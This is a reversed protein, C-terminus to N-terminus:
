EDWDEDNRHNHANKQLSIAYDVQALMDTRDFNYAGNSYYQGKFWTYEQQGNDDVCVPLLVGRYQIACEYEAKVDEPLESFEAFEEVGGEVVNYCADTLFCAVFFRSANYIKDKTLRFIDVYTNYQKVAEKALEPKIENGFFNYNSMSRM